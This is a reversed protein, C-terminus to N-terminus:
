KISIYNKKIRQDRSLFKKKFYFFSIKKDLIKDLIKEAGSKKYSNLGTIIFIKKFKKLKIFRYLDNKNSFKM